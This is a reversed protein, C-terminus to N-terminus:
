SAQAGRAGSSADDLGAFAARIREEIREPSLDAMAMQEAQTGQEIFRDPLGLNLVHVALGAAHLAENVASGAGGQLVNEELTVLLQHSNAMDILLAEDLPKVFRMNVVSAGLRDAVQQASDLLTGFALIAIDSGQRVLEGRGWAIRVTVRAVFMAVYQEGWVEGLFRSRLIAWSRRDQPPRVWLMGQISAGSAVPLELVMM